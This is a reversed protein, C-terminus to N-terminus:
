YIHLHGSNRWFRPGFISILFKLYHKQKTNCSARSITYLQLKDTEVVIFINVDKPEFLTFKLILIVDQPEGVM